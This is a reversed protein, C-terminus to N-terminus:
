LTHAQDFEFLYLFLCCHFPMIQLYFVNSLSCTKTKNKFIAHHLISPRNHCFHCAFLLLGRWFFSLYLKITHLTVHYSTKSVMGRKFMLSSYVPKRNCDGWFPLMTHRSVRDAHPLRAYLAPLLMIHLSQVVRVQTEQTSCTHISWLATRCM